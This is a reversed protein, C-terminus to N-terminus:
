KAAKRKEYETREAKAEDAQEDDAIWYKDLISNVSALSHGTVAAIRGPKQNARALRVVCSHRGMQFTTEPYDTLAAIRRFLHGFQEFSFPKGTHPNIFFFPQNSGAGPDLTELVEATVDDAPQSVFSQTKQQWVRFRHDKLDYYCAEELQNNELLRREFESLRRLQYLDGPRQGIDWMTLVLGAAEPRGQSRALSAFQEVFPASWLVVRRQRGAGKRRRKLTIEKAPNREAEGANIAVAYLNNIVALLHRQRTPKDKFVTLFKTITATKIKAMHPHFGGHKRAVADAWKEIQRLCSEYGDRTTPALDTWWDSNQWEAIAWRLSGQPWAEGTEPDGRLKNLADFLAEAEKWAAGYEAPDGTRLEHDRPLRISAPYHDLWRAPRHRPDPYFWYETRGTPRTKTKLYQGEYSKTASTM